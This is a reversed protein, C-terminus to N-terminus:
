EPKRGAGMALRAIEVHTRGHLYKRRADEKTLAPADDPKAGKGAKYDALAQRKSLRSVMEFLRQYESELAAFDTKV